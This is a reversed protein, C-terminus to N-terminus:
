LHPIGSVDLAVPPSKGHVGECKVGTSEDAMFYAVFPKIGRYSKYESSVM